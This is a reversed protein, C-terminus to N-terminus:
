PKLIENMLYGAKFKEIGEGQYYESIEYLYEDKTYDICNSVRDFLINVIENSLQLKDQLILAKYAINSTNKRRTLESIALETIYPNIFKDLDIYFGIKIHPFFRKFLQKDNCIEFLFIDIIFNLYPLFSYKQYKELYQSIKYSDFQKKRRFINKKIEQIFNYNELQVFQLESLAGITYLSAFINVSRKFQRFFKEIPVIVKGEDKFYTIVVKNIHIDRYITRMIENIDMSSMFYPSFTLGNKASDYNFLFYDQIDNKLIYERSKKLNNEKIFPGYFNLGYLNFLQEISTYKM